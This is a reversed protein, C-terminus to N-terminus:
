PAGGAACKREIDACSLEGEVSAQGCATSLAQCRETTPTSAGALAREALLRRRGAFFAHDAASLGDLRALFAGLASRSGTLKNRIDNRNVETVPLEPLNREIDDLLVGFVRAARKALFPAYQRYFLHQMRAYAADIQRAIEFYTPADNEARFTDSVLGNAKAMDINYQAVRLLRRWAAQVVPVMTERKRDMRQFAGLTDDYAEQLRVLEARLGGAGSNPDAGRTLNVCRNSLGTAADLRQVIASVTGGLRTLRDITAGRSQTLAEDTVVESRLQEVQAEAAAYTTMDGIAAWDPQRVEVAQLFRESWARQETEYQLLMEVAAAHQAPLEGLQAQLTGQEARLAAIGELASACDEQKQRESRLQEEIAALKEREQGKLVDIDEVKLERYKPSMPASSQATEDADVPRRGGCAGISAICTAVLGAQLLAM